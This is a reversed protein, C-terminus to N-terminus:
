NVNQTAQAQPHVPRSHKELEATAWSMANLALFSLVGVVVFSVVTIIMLKKM